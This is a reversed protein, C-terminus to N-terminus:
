SARGRSTARQPAVPNAVSGVGGVPCQPPDAGRRYFATANREAQGAGGETGRTGKPCGQASEAHEAAGRVWTSARPSHGTDTAHKPNLARM